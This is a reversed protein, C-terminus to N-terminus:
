ATHVECPPVQKVPAETVGGVQAEIEGGAPQENTPDPTPSAGAPSKFPASASQLVNGAVVSLFEPPLPLLPARLPVDM